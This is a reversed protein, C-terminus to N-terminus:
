FRFKVTGRYSQNSVDSRGITTDAGVSVEFNEGGFAIGASAEFWDKDNGSLAFIAPLGVGGVFNAGFSAPKDEFEHIYYASAYPRIKMGGSLTLGALGQVSDFNGRDFALAPPGGREVTPTFGIRSFRM